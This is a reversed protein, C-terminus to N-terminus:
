RTTGAVASMKKAFCSTEQTVRGKVLMLTITHERSDCEREVEDFRCVLVADCLDEQGGEHGGEDEGDKAGLREADGADGARDGHEVLGDEGDDLALWVSRGIEMEDSPDVEPAGNEV